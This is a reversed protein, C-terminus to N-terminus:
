IAFLSVNLKVMFICAPLTIIFLPLWLTRGHCLKSLKKAFFYALNSCSDRVPLYNIIIYFNYFFMYSSYLKNYNLIDICLLIHQLFPNM